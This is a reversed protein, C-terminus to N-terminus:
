RIEYTITVNSTIVNEGTPIEPVSKNTAVSDYSLSEGMAAYPVPYYGNGGENFSVIRVLRVGLDEALEEAKERAAKIAQKRAVREYAEEDDIEFYPGSLNTAGQEVLMGLVENTSDVDRIIVEIGQTVVYGRLIREGENWDYRPNTNFYTTKIDKDSINLDELADLMNAIKENVVEQADNADDAEEEVSFSVRAMDPEIRVEAEGTFTLTNPIDGGTGAYKANKLSQLSLAGLLIILLVLGLVLLHGVYGKQEKTFLSDM